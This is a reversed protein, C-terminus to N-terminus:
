SKKLRRFEEISLAPLGATRRIEAIAYMIARNTTDDKLPSTLMDALSEVKIGRRTFPKFDFGEPPDTPEPTETPKETDTQVRPGQTLLPINYDIIRGKVTAPTAHVGQSMLDKSVMTYLQSVNKPPTMGGEIKKVAAELKAKDISLKKRAM